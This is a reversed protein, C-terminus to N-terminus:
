KDHLANRVSRSSRWYFPSNFILLNYNQFSNFLVFRSTLIRKINSEAVSEAFFLNSKKVLECGRFFRVAAGSFVAGAQLSDTTM